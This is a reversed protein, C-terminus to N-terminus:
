FKNYENELEEKAKELAILEEQAEPNESAYDERYWEILERELLGITVSLTEKTM